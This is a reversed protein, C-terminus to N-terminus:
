NLSFRQIFVEYPLAKTWDPIYELELQRWVLQLLVTNFIPGITATVIAYAQALDNPFHPRVAELLERYKEENDNIM